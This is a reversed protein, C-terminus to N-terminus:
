RNMYDPHRRSLFFRISPGDLQHIKIKLADETIDLMKQDEYEIGERFKKDTRLWRYYTDRSVRAIKCIASVNRGANRKYAALFIEKKSEIVGCNDKGDSDHM